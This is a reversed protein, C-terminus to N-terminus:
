LQVFKRELFRWLHTQSQAYQDSIEQALGTCLSPRQRALYLLAGGIGCGIDIFQGGKEEPLLEALAAWTIRTTLCFPMQNRATNWYVLLLAVFVLLFIWPPVQ